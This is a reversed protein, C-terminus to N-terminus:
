ERLAQGALRLLHVNRAMLTLEFPGDSRNVAHPVMRNERSSSAPANRSILSRLEPRSAAACGTDCVTVFFQAFRSLSHRKRVTRHQRGSLSPPSIPKVSTLFMARNEARSCRSLRGDRSDDQAMAAADAVPRASRTLCASLCGSTLWRKAACTSASDSESTHM